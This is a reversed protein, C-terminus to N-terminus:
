GRLLIISYMKCGLSPNWFQIFPCKWDDGSCFFFFFVVAAVLGKKLKAIDERACCNM